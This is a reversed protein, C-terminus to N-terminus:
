CGPTLAHGYLSWLMVPSQETHRCFVPAEVLKLDSDTTPTLLIGLIYIYTGLVLGPAQFHCSLPTVM